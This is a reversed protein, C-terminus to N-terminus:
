RSSSQRKLGSIKRRSESSTRFVCAVATSCDHCSSQPTSALKRRSASSARRPLRSALSAETGPLPWRSAPGPRGREGCPVHGWHTANILPRVRAPRLRIKIAIRHTGPKMPTAHGQWRTHGARQRPAPYFARAPVASRASRPRDPPPGRGPRRSRRPGHAPSCRRAHRADLRWQAPWCAPPAQLPPPRAPSPRPCTPPTQAKEQLLQRRSSM